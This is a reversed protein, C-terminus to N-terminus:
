MPKSATEVVAWSALFGWRSMGIPMMPESTSRCSGRSDEAGDHHRADDVVLLEVDGVRDGDAISAIPMFHSEPSTLSPAIAPRLETMRTMSRLWGRIKKAIDFSPRSGGTTAFIWGRNRVGQIVVIM